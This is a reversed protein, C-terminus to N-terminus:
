EGPFLWLHISSTDIGKEFMDNLTGFSYRKIDLHEEERFLRVCAIKM